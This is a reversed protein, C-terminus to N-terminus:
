PILVITGSWNGQPVLVEEGAKLRRQFVVMVSQNKDTYNFNREDATEWGTMDIGKQAAATAVYLVMARKAKVRVDAMVGGRTQTFQWGRFRDPVQKWVYTRNGYAKAGDRFTEIRFGKGRVILEATEHTVEKGLLPFVDSKLWTPDKGRVRLVPQAEQIYCITDWLDSDAGESVATIGFELSVRSVHDLDESEISTPGLTFREADTIGAPLSQSDTWTIPDNSGSM